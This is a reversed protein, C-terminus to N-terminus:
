TTADLVLRTGVILLDPDGTGIRAGNIRWLRAAERAVDAASARGGLHDKAISWLSEGRQVVHTRDGRRAPQAAAVPSRTAVGATRTVFRRALAM